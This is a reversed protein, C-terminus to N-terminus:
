SKYLLVKNEKVMACGDSTWVNRVGYIRQAEGLLQMRSSTLTETVLLRKGELKRKNVFIERRVAYRAFKVFIPGPKNDKRKPKGM